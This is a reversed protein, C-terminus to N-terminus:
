SVSTKGKSFDEIIQDFIGRWEHISDVNLYDNVHECLANMDVDKILDSYREKGIMKVDQIGNGYQNFYKFLVSSEPMYIKKQMRIMPHINGLGVQRESNMIFIDVRMLYAMYEDYPMVERPCIAKSGFLKLAYEEIEDGYEKDGYCLPVFVRINEDKYAYLRSLVEKHNLIRDARHNVQIYIAEGRESRRAMMTKRYGNLDPKITNQGRYLAFFVKAKGKIIEHYAGIDAPHIAVFYPVRKEFIKTILLKIRYALEGKIGSMREIYLDYGWEIWVIKKLYEHHFLSILVKSNAPIQFSHFIVIDYMNLIAYLKKNEEATSIPASMRLLSAEVGKPLEAIPANNLQVIFIDFNYSKLDVALMKTMENQLVPHAPIMHAIKM